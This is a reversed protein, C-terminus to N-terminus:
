APTSNFPRIVRLLILLQAIMPLLFYYFVFLL